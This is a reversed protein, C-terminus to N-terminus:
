IYYVFVFYIIDFFRLIKNAGSILVLTIEVLEITLIIFIFSHDRKEYGKLTIFM